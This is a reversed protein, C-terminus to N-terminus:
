RGLKIDLVARVREQIRDSPVRELVEAFFGDVLMQEAENAPLGRSQLYFIQEKDVPGVTAGHSCRAVDHAAIELIPTPAASAKDSLLMNRSTQNAASQSASNQIDVVGHWTMAASDSMVAKFLLDSETRAGIHDQRTDYDFQQDRDAFFLGLLETNSGEGTMKVELRSKTISGGLGLLIGQFSADKDLLARMTAFNQMGYGWRQVDIFRVHSGPGALVEVAGSVLGTQDASIGEQIITVSSNAEAVVLLHPFLGADATAIGIGYKVPLAVEVGEPVYVLCGGSRLAAQLGLYKWEQPRVATGLKERLLDPHELAATHLDSVIVGKAALEDDLSTHVVDSDIQILRASLEEDEDWVARLNDPMSSPATIDSPAASYPAIGELTLKETDVRRWEEDLPDPMPAEEFAAWAELRRKLVWDPENLRASLAEVAARDITSRITTDAQTM